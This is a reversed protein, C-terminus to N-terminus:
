FCSRDIAGVRRTLVDALDDPRNPSCASTQPRPDPTQTAAPTPTMSSITPISTPLHQNPARQFAVDAGASVAALIVVIVAVSLIRKKWHGPRNPRQQLPHVDPSDPEDPATNM